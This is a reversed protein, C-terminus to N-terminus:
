GAPSSRRRRMSQSKGKYRTLQSRLTDVSRQLAAEFNRGSQRTYLRAGPLSLVIEAVKDRIAADNEKRLTVEATHIPSGLGGLKGIKKDIFELLREDASVGVTQTRINM